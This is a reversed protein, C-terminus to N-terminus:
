LRPNYIIPPLERKFSKEGFNYIIKVEHSGDEVKRLSSLSIDYSYLLRLKLNINGGIILSFSDFSSLDYGRVNFGALYNDDLIGVFGLDNQLLVFDSYLKGFTKISVNNNIRYFYQWNLRIGERFSYEYKDVVNLEKDFVIGIEFNKLNYIVFGSIEYFISNDGLVDSLFPDNHNLENSTYIGSPTIIKNKNINLKRIGSGVGFSLLGYRSQYVYNYSFALSFSNQIGSSYSAIKAGFAGHLRYLPTSYAVTYTKPREPMNVWQDRVSLSLVNDGSLGAYASNLLYKDFAYLSGLNNNQSFAHCIGVYVFLIVYFNIRVLDLVIKNTKMM